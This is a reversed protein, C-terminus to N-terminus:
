VLTGFSSDDRLTVDFTMDVRMLAFFDFDVSCYSQMKNKQRLPLHLEITSNDLQVPRSKSEVIFNWAEVPSSCQIIQRHHRLRKWCLALQSWLKREKKEGSWCAATPLKSRIMFYNQSVSWQQQICRSFFHGRSTPSSRYRPVKMQSDAFNSM